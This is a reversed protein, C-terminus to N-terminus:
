KKCKKIYGNSADMMIHMGEFLKKSCNNLIVCPVKLERMNTKVSSSLNNDSVIIGKIQPLQFLLNNNITKTVLIDNKSLTSLEKLSKIIRVNGKVVGTSIGKARFDFEDLTEKLSGTYEIAHFNRFANYYLKNIKVIKSVEERSLEGESYDYITNIDLYWIDSEYDLIKKNLYSKALMKTYRKVLFNFRLLYDKYKSEIIILNQLDEIQEKLKDFKKEKFNVEVKVYIEERKFNNSELIEFNALQKKIDRIVDEVDEVYFSESLDFKFYSIYGYSDIFHKFLPHYFDSCNEQYDKLIKLNSSSFWYRYSEEDKKIKYILDNLEKKIKYEVKEEKIDILSDFERLSIYDKLELYLRNKEIFNLIKLDMYSHYVSKYDEFVLDNWKKEIDNGNVKSMDHCYSNYKEHYKELIEENEEFVSNIKKQKIKGNLKRKFKDKLTSKIELQPFINLKTFFYTYDYNTFSFVIDSLNMANYLCSNFMLKNVRYENTLKLSTYYENIVDKYNNEILSYMFKKCSMRQKCWINNQNEYLISILQRTQIIYIDTKTYALEIEVPYGLNSSISKALDITEDIKNKDLLEYKDEKIYKDKYFNFIYNEYKKDSQININYEYTNLTVPNMTTVYGLVSSKVEKQVIIAVSVDSYDINNKVMYYLSNYSFLSRYCNLINEEINSKNINTRTPFLGSYSYNEDVGDISCRLLYNDDDNMFDFLEYLTSQSLRIDSLLMSIQKSIIEINDMEIRDLLLKIKEKNKGISNFYEKTDIAVSTPVKYGYRHLDIISKAKNGINSTVVYGNLEVVM